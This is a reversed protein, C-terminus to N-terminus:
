LIIIHFGGKGSNNGGELKLYDPFLWLYLLSLAMQLFSSIDRVQIKEKNDNHVESMSSDALIVQLQLLSLAVQLLEFPDKLHTQLGPKLPSPCFQM